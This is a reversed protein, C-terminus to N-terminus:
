VMNAVRYCMSRALILRPFGTYIARIYSALGVVSVKNMWLPSEQGVSSMDPLHHARQQGKSEWYLIAHEFTEEEKGCAPCTKDPDTDGWQPYAALYSKRARMKHIRGATFKDLGMLPAPDVHAPLALISPTSLPTDLTTPTTREHYIQTGLIVLGPPDPPPREDIPLLHPHLLPLFRAIAVV